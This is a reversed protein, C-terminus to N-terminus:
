DFDSPRTEAGMRVQDLIAMLIPWLLTGVLVRIWPGFGAQATGTIGDILSRILVDASLLALVTMTLQWLPFIRIQLHFNLTLYAVITLTIANQGLLQGHMIDLAIGLLFAWGLGIRQPWMMIWYILALVVFPPRFAQMSDPLPVIELALAVFLVLFAPWSRVPRAV